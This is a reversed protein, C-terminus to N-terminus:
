KELQHFSTRSHLLQSSCSRQLTGSKRGGSEGKENEFFYIEHQTMVTIRLVNLLETRICDQKLAHLTSLGLQQLLAEKRSVLPDLSNFSLKGSCEHNHTAGQSFAVLIMVYDQENGEICFGYGQV